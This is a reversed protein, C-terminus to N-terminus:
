SMATTEEGDAVYELKGDKLSVKYKQTATYQGLNADTDRTITVIIKDTKNSYKVSLVYKYGTDNNKIEINEKLSNAGSESLNEGTVLNKLASEDLTVSDNEVDVKNNMFEKYIKTVLEIQAEEETLKNVFKTRCVFTVCAVAIVTCVLVITVVLIAINNKKM